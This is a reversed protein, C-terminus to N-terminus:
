GSAVLLRHFGVTIGLCTAVYGVVLVTLDIWQIPGGWLMVVAFAFAAFPLVIAVLNSIQQATPSKTSASRVDAPVPRAVVERTAFRQVSM